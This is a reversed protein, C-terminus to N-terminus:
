IFYNLITETHSCVIWRDEQSIMFVKSSYQRAQRYERRLYDACDRDVLDFSFVHKLAVPGLDSLEFQGERNEM